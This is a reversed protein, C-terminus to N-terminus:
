ESMLEIILSCNLRASIVFRFSDRVNNGNIILTSQLERCHYIGREVRLIERVPM